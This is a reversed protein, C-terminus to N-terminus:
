CQGKFNFNKRFHRTKVNFKRGSAERKSEKASSWVWSCEVHWAVLLDNAAAVVGDALTVKALADGLQRGVLVDYSSHFVLSCFGRVVGILAGRQTIGCRSGSLRGCLGLGVM